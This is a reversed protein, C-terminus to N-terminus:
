IQYPLKSGAYFTFSISQPGLNYRDVLNETDDRADIDISLIAQLFTSLSSLVDKQYLVPKLLERTIRLDELTQTEIDAYM